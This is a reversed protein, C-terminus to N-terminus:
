KEILIIELSRLYYKTLLTYLISGTGIVYFVIIVGRACCLWWPHQGKCMHTMKLLEHTGWHMPSRLLLKM